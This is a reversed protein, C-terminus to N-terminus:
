IAKEEKATHRYKSPEQAILKTIIPHPM